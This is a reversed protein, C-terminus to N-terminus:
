LRWPSAMPSATSQLGTVWVGDRLWDLYAAPQRKMVRASTKTQWEKGLEGKETSKTKRLARPNTFLTICISNNTEACANFPARRPRHRMGLSLSPRRVKRFIRM